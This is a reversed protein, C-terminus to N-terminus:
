TNYRGPEWRRRAKWDRPLTSFRSLGLAEIPLSTRRHQALESIALGASPAMGFGHGSCSAVILGDPDSLRELITMQDPTVELVGAWSRLLPIDRIGPMLEALRRAINRLIPTNPKAPEETLEVDVWEHPGGNFHINGRRTQRLSLGGGVMAVDFLPPLPATVCAELRVTATPVEVHALAAVKSTQAGAAVVVVGASIDGAPTAVGTVKGGAVHIGTVPREEIIAGGRDRLAWAFAQTTRQPNAHGSRPTHIGGIVAPSLSPAIERCREGDIREFPIGTNLFGRYKEDLADREHEGLAVWLRGKQRWETPYGLEEDLTNWLREAALALPAELPEEGRLSLFGTARSSSEQAARGKDLVVVKAGAKALWYGASLGIIGAGVIVVDATEM